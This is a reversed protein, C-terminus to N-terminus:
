IRKENEDQKQEQKVLYLGEKMCEIFNSIHKEGQFIFDEEMDLYGTFILKISNKLRYKFNDFWYIFTNDFLYLLAQKIKRKIVYEKFNDFWLLDRRDFKFFSVRKWFELSLMNLEKDFSIDIYVDHSPDGCSCSCRYLVSDDDYQDCLMVGQKFKSENKM